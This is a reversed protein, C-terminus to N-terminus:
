DLSSIKGQLANHLSDNQMLGRCADVIIYKKSQAICHQWFTKNKKQTGINNEKLLNCGLCYLHFQSIEQSWDVVYAINVQVTPVMSTLM